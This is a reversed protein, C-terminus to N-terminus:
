ALSEIERQLNRRAQAELADRMRPTFYIRERQLFQRLVQGRGTRYADDPVWAYERRITQAYADYRADKAGLISLDADLLIECDRDHADAQHHRTALIFRSIKDIVLLPIGFQTLVTQAYDASREENDKARSDYIADHFWAALEIAPLDRAQDKLTRITELVHGVHALTHYHRDPGAYRRSLDVFSEHARDSSVGLAGLTNTWDAELQEQVTM